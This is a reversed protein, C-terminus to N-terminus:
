KIVEGDAEVERTWCWETVLDGDEDTFEVYYPCDEDTEDVEIIVGEIGVEHESAETFLVRQGIKFM